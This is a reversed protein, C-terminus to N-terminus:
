DIYVFRNMNFVVRALNAAGHERLYAELLEREREDPPRGLATECAFGVPDAARDKPDGVHRGIREGFHRSMSEVFRNNWQALAQVATTSEDRGPVSLSPDPCDLATLLPQPQSRVVFRYISRRHCAPDDPDHLHYEYHPSHKPKEIVFDRFSPGGRDEVRLLGSIALLSDRFEEATMRRRNFRWLNVNGSDIEAAAADHGSGRRYAESTVLLRVISKLSHRPDDRLRAALYDLLRPHSPKAGMRGFDNPTEVIPRGFTWHWLRNVISRWLLPNEPRTLSLALAARANAEDADPSLVFEADAGPWLPPMGPSMPDGPSRIDGRNLRRIPRPDGGTAVFKGQPEFETAVAFVTRGTGGVTEKAREDRKGVGAGEDSGTGEDSGRGPGIPRDARDVAAFVAHLRYYDEMSVPDFKHHHCQACQVTTSAFVNFVASIMEDRDLHKAIRGDVKAEGVEVHGIFDWPGAALFGLAVVGDPDGPFLADGAIQEQVFRDYPKDDNLAAIVYDRYPWAHERPKDKDYGHTEAYRALDLWRRGWKEGFAESALMEDVVSELELASFTAAREPDPPLGTLDYCLRRYLTAPDAPGFPDLGADELRADLFADIPHGPRPPEVAAIPRLSWWDLDSAPGDELLRDQPWSAGAAVWARLTEVEAGSLPDGDLPMAPERGSVQEILRSAGPDGPVLTEAADDFRDLRVGGEGAPGHCGLCRSQLIPAVDTEFDVADANSPVLGWLAVIAWRWLPCVAPLRRIPENSAIRPFVM